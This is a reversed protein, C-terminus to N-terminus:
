DEKGNLSRSSKYWKQVVAEVKERWEKESVDFWSIRKEAGFWTMQRKAYKQEQRIWESVAENRSIRGELYDRWQRYGLAQMAQDDWGVGNKLLENIEDGFGDNLREKVRDSIRKKLKEKEIKLGVWLVDYKSENQIGLGQNKSRAIEIARIIRRPNKRDSGNMAEVKESDVRSLEALLDSASLKNLRLRLDFNPLIQTTSIGDILGKIYLGTGGVVIPLRKRDLIEEVVREGVELYQAVSFKESTFVLDVGWVKIGSKEIEGLDKGTGIDMGKYVQRSDASLVEGDFKRALELALGTKGTATPGCIVLLKKM